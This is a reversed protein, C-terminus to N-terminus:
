KLTMVRVTPSVAKRAPDAPRVDLDTGRVQIYLYPNANACARRWQGPNLTWSTAKGADFELGPKSSWTLSAM